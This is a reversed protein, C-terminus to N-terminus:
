IFTDTRLLDLTKVIKSLAFPSNDVFNNSYKKRENESIILKKLSLYITKKNIEKLKIVNFYDSIEKLGGKTSTITATGAFVSELLVRGFGEEIISPIVSISSKSLYNLIYQNKKFGHFRIKKNNIFGIEKNSNIAGFIDVTWDPFEDIVKTTADIFFNLGKPKSLEGVYVINNKKFKFDTQRIPEIGNYFIHLKSRKILYKPFGELFRKKLYKSVFCISHCKDMLKIRDKLRSNKKFSFPDNHYFLKISSKKFVNAIMIASQPRNHVEIIRPPNSKIMSIFEKTHGINKGYFLNKITKKVNKVKYGRFFKSQYNAFITIKNKYKSKQNIDKVYLSVSKYNEPSFKEKFPLLINIENSLNQYKM